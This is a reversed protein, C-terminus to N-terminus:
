TPLEINEGGGPVLFCCAYVILISFQRSPVLPLGDTAATILSGLDESTSPQGCTAAQLATTPSGSLANVCAHAVAHLHPLPSSQASQTDLLINPALDLRM